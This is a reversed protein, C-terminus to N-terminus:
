WAEGLQCAHQHKYDCQGTSSLLLTSVNTVASHRKGAASAATGSFGFLRQAAVGVMPAGLASLVGQLLAAHLM